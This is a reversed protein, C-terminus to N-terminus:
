ARLQKAEYLLLELGKEVTFGESVPATENWYKEVEQLVRRLKERRRERAGILEPMPFRGWDLLANLAANDTSMRRNYGNKGTPSYKRYPASKFPLPRYPIMSVQAKLVEFM